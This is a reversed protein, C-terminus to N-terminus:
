PRWPESRGIRFSTLHWQTGVCAMKVTYYTRTSAYRADLHNVAGTFDFFVTDTHAYILGESAETFGERYIGRRFVSNKSNPINKKAEAWALRYAADEGCPQDKLYYIPLNDDVLKVPKPDPAKQSVVVAVAIFFYVGLGILVWHWWKLNNM